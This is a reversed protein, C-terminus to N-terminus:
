FARLQQGNVQYDADRKEKQRDLISPQLGRSSARNGGEQDPVCKGLGAFLLDVGWHVM